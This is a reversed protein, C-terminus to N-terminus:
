ALDFLLFRAPQTANITLAIAGEIAAGDGAGLTAGLTEIEGEIVQLWLGRAAATAYEITSGAALQGLYLRVDQNIPVSGSAGDPAALLTLGNETTNDTPRWESYSPQLGQKQPVIWIQLFHVAESESANGESHSIGRGASMAQLEGACNIRGNGMSDRHELEGSVVYSLIEMDRHPHTPFGGGPAVRDENIVRLSRFGMQKEDFYEGFSFSHYSDLWGRDAHGRENAPRITLRPQTASLTSTYSPSTHSM